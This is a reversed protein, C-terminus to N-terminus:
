YSRVDLADRLGNGVINLALVLIMIAIGPVIALFPNHTIIFNYNERIMLGWSPQPSQVGAGLFSLGAEIVIASAFNAAAVVLVPGAVNPLIHKRIIRYGSYGLARAADIYELSRISKVQGRIIRAVNVWLTLGVAIFVQWFGKGMAMTIAFVLLLTPMSWVVNILWMILEDTKGGYYGAIAGLLVGILLSIFVAILGVSLSVRTGVILRSLIDRGFKDTGLLFIKSEFRYSDKKLKYFESESVGEDLFRRVLISDGHITYGSIPIYTEHDKMGGLSRQVFNEKKYDGENRIVLFLLKFGPKKGGIEVMMRNAFPSHDPAIWYAFIATFFALAIIVLGAM